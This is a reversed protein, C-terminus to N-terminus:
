VRRHGGRKGQLEGLLDEVERRVAMPDSSEVNITVDGGIVPGGGRGDRRQGAPIIEEGGHAIVLRPEGVPGPVVGGSQFEPFNIDPLSLNQGTLGEFIGLVADKFANALAEAVNSMANVVKRAVKFWNTTLLGEVLMSVVKRTLAGLKKGVKRWDVNKIFTVFDDVVKEGLAALKAGVQEWDVEDIFDSIADVAKSFLEVVMEGRKKWDVEDIVNMLQDVASAFMDSVHEGAGAWDFEDLFGMIADVAGQFMADVTSALEGWKINQIFSGIMGVAKKFMKAVTEGVTGWPVQQVFRTIFGVASNFMEAVRRGIKAWPFSAIASAMNEAMGAFSINEGESLLKIFNSITMGIEKIPTLWGQIIPLLNKAADLLPGGIDIAISELKGKLEDIKASFSDMQNDAVDETTGGAGELEERYERIADSQGLLQKINRGVRQGFGLQEIAATKEADSLGSFADTMDEVIDSMDRLNGESDFVQVGFEQFADANQQARKPLRGLIRSLAIGAKRGKLGQDAFAALVATGEEMSKNVNRLAAGAKNTMAQAFQQVSANALTNAKTFVDTVRTLNQINQQTDESTLGLASQADTALDTATAMDFMGAQAFQAVQPLAEVSEKADLGASALFFYSEAAQDASIRTTRGVEKAAEAMDDRMADSVDGMIALSENMKDGFTAAEQASKVLGAGVAAIGGVAAAGAVKGFTATAGKAKAVASQFGTADGDILIKLRDLAM